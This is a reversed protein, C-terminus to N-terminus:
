FRLRLRSIRVPSVVWFFGQRYTFGFESNYGPTPFLLGTKRTVAFPYKFSPLPIIPVDAVCFWTDKLYLSDGLFADVDEFTFRWAPTEGEMANCNTFFGDKARYHDESFRQVVRGTVTSNTERNFLRGSTIIGAESNINVESREAWLDSNKRTIHVNGTAVAKGTLMNVTLHDATLRTDTQVFVVSGDAEYLEKERFYTIRDANLTMPEESTSTGSPTETSSVTSSLDTQALVLLPSISNGIGGVTLLFFTLLATCNRGM